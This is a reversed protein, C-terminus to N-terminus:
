HLTPGQLPLTVVFQSGLGSGGSHAVVSGGHAQVLERVVTLGLGLGGGNFATAHVDQVFPEFVHALAEASIGIGNDSVTMVLANGEVTATLELEGGDPTYKSANDLLNSLVQALRVPDGDVELARQPVRVHFKQLRTDMAARCSEVAEDIIKRMDVIQRELRLKGSDVRSVDLLDSVLRSMHAVQRDIVAQLQALRPENGPIKGLIAAANRIPALPHRLEHALVGLFETQRAKAREAAAQLEQASLAALVLKGNAERLHGHQREQEARALGFDRVPQQLAGLTPVQLSRQGPPPVGHFAFCHLEQGKARYMAADARDILTAANDGDDPYISIGINASLRLVHEGVRSPRDLTEFVKSAVLVADSADHVETLLLLFEDSGHRSVTDADRLLRSLDKAVSQLVQDGVAHGLTDNIQKFNSIHVCLLALRGQHRRAAAIAQGFRDLMLSRQPLNTLEDRETSLSAQMLASRCHDADTQAKLTTLLLQENTKVLVASQLGGVRKEAELVERRLAALEARAQRADEQLEALASAAPQAGIREAALSLRNTM